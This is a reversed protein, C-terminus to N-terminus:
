AAFTLLTQGAGHAIRLALDRGEEDRLVDIGSIAGIGRTLHTRSGLEGFMLEVREDHPDYAAGLLPYDNEQAQAGIEPDDVELVGRRGTNRRTFGDLTEMWESKAVSAVVPPNATTYLRTMAARHPVCLVSCTATRLIRTTVSGVLMRTLFGRGHSGTAILDANVSAAFALLETAPDGQLLIRQVIIDGPIRLHDRVKQLANGADNKYSSGTGNWDYLTSDRPAVHALYITGGPAVLDLAMRASRVSTESFDIAVVVRHPAHRLGNTVALVPVGALRILRLATEDGFLRDMVRHRGLGAVIMSAGSEHAVRAITAAPDGAYLEVDIDVLGCLRRLQAAVVRKQDARRSAEVDPPIPVTAESSVVPLPRLVTVVRLADDTGGFTRGAVIAPDSQDRGDTAIIVPAAKLARIGLEPSPSPDLQTSM